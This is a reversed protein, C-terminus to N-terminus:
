VLGNLGISRCGEGSSHCALFRSPFHCRADRAAGKADLSINRLPQSITSLHNRQRMRFPRSHRLRKRTRWCTACQTSFNMKKEHQTPSKRRHSRACSDNPRFCFWMTNEYTAAGSIFSNRQIEAEAPVSQSKHRRVMAFSIGKRAVPKRLICYEERHKTSLLSRM